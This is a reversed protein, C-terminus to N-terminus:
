RGRQKAELEDIRHALRRLQTGMGQEVHGSFLPRRDKAHLAHGAILAFTQGYEPHDVVEFTIHAVEFLERDFDSPDPHRAKAKVSHTSM